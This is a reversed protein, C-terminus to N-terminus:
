KPSVEKNAPKDKDEKLSEMYKFYFKRFQQVHLPLQEELHKEMEEMM